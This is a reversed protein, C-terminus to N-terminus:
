RIMSPADSDVEACKLWQTRDWRFRFGEELRPRTTPAESDLVEQNPEVQPEAGAIAVGFPKQGFATDHQSVLGHFIIPPPHV